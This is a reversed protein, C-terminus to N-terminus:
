QIVVWPQSTTPAVRVQCGSAASSRAAEITHLVKLGDEGTILPLEQGTVCAIFNQWEAVYSDDRNQQHRFLELWGNGDSPYVAM